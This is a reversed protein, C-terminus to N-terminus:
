PTSPVLTTRTPLAPQGPSTPTARPPAPATPVPMPRPMGGGGTPNPATAQIYLERQDEGSGQLVYFFGAFDGAGPIRWTSWALPGDAGAAVRTWGADALQKAYADHLAAVSLETTAYANSTFRNGGGGGGSPAVQVGEPPSLVPLREAGPPLAPRPQEGPRQGCPGPNTLDLRLRLDNPGDAPGIAQLNVYGQVGQPACFYRFNAANSAQFGFQPGSSGLTTPTWSQQRLADEYFTTVDAPKGPADFVIEAAFLKGDARRAVSGILRGGPPTPLALPLDDPQAGPLLQPTPIPLGPPGGPQTLLREALERLLTDDATPPTAAAVRYGAEAPSALVIALLMIATLVMGGATLVIRKRM